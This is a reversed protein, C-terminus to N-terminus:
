DSTGAHTYKLIKIPSKRISRKILSSHKEDYDRIHRSVRRHLRKRPHCGTMRAGLEALVKAARDYDAQTRIPRLPFGRVLELFKDAATAARRKTTM